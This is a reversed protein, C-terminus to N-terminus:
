ERDNAKTDDNLPIPETSMTLILDEQSEGRLRKYRKNESNPHEEEGLKSPDSTFVILAGCFKLAFFLAETKYRAHQQNAVVYLHQCTFFIVLLTNDSM